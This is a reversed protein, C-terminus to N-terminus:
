SFTAYILGHILVAVIVVAIAALSRGGTLPALAIAGVVVLVYIVISILLVKGQPDPDKYKHYTGNRRREALVEQARDIQGQLSEIILQKKSYTLSNDERTLGIEKVNTQIIKGLVSNPLSSLAEKTM